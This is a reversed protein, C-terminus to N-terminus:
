PVAKVQKGGDPAAHGSAHPRLRPCGIESEPILLRTEPTDTPQLAITMAFGKTRWSNLPIRRRNPKDGLRCEIHGPQRPLVEGAPFLRRDDAKVLAIRRDAAFYLELFLNECGHGDM